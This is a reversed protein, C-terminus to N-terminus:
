KRRAMMLQVNAKRDANVRQVHPREAMMTLYPRVTPVAELFDRGYIAKTASTVIPLHTCAACDAM